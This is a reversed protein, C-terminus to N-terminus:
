YHGPFSYTISFSVAQFNATRGGTEDRYGFTYAPMLSLKETLKYTLQANFFLISSKLNSGPSQSNSFYYSGGAGAALRETFDYNLSLNAQNSQFIAGYASPEQDRRFGGTLSFRTWKRTTSLDLYPSAATQEQRVQKVLIFSPFNSSGQVSTNFSSNSLNVGGLLTVGWNESFQHTLGGYTGLNRDYNNGPYDVARLLFKGILVTKQNGLAYDFRLITQNM